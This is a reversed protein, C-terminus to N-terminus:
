VKYDAFHSINGNKSNLIQKETDTVYLFKTLMVMHKIIIYDKYIKQASPRYVLNSYKKCKVDKVYQYKQENKILM